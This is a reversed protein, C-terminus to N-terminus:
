QEGAAPAHGAQLHTAITDHEFVGCKRLNYLVIAERYDVKGIGPLVTLCEVSIDEHGAIYLQRDMQRLTGDDACGQLPGYNEGCDM